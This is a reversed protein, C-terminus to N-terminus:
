NARCSLSISEGPAMMDGNDSYVTFYGDFKGTKEGKVITKPFSFEIDQWANLESYFKAHEYKAEKKRNLKNLTLDSIVAKVEKLQLEENIDHISAEIRDEFISGYFKAKGDVIKCSFSSLVPDTIIGGDSDCDIKAQPNAKNHDKILRPLVEDYVCIGMAESFDGDRFCEGSGQDDCMSQDCQLEAKQILKECINLNKSHAHFSLVMTILLTASTKM